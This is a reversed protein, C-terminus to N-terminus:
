HPSRTWIPSPKKACRPSIYSTNGYGLLPVVLSLSMFLGILRSVQPLALTEAAAKEREERKGLLLYLLLSTIAVFAMGKGTGIWALLAPDRIWQTLLRDSGWIWLTVFVAYVLVIRLRSGM